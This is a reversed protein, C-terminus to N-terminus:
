FWETFRTDQGDHPHHMFAEVGQRNLYGNRDHWGDPASPSRVYEIDIHTGTATKHNGSMIATLGNHDKESQFVDVGRRKKIKHHVHHLYTYLHQCSGVLQQAEAKFAGLLVEEKAGDGHSFMIANNEFGYYKRHRASMNYETARIGEHNRVSAAITQALAWGSRWDHNSMCHVIDTDAHRACENLADIMAYEGAKWAQFYTGDTDQPTGSTSSKGNDTHLIDNGVVFLIRNFGTGKARNILALTGEIMRHRAVDINYTQSTESQESLKGFHVDAPDIILLHEGKSGHNVRPAFMKRDLPKYEELADIFRDLGESEGDSATHMVSHTVSGDKHTKTWVVKAPTDAGIAAAGSTLAMDSAQWKRARELLGKVARESKGMIRAIEKRPKGQEKLSLAQSQDPTM